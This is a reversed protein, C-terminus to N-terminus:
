DWWGIKGSISLIAASPHLHEGEHDLVMRVAQGRVEPSFMNTTKSTM